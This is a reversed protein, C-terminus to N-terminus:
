CVLSPICAPAAVCRAAPPWSRSWGRGGRRRTVCCRRGRTPSASRPTPRWPPRRLAHRGPSGGCGRLGCRCVRMLVHQWVHVWLKIHLTVPCKRIPERVVAVKFQSPERYQILVTTTYLQCPTVHMCCCSHVLFTIVSSVLRKRSADAEQLKRRLVAAQRQMLAAQRAMQVEARM